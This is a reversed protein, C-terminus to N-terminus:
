TLKRCRNELQYRKWVTAKAMDDLPNSTPLAHEVVTNAVPLGIAKTATSGSIAALATSAMAECALLRPM